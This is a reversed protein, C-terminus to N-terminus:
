EIGRRFHGNTFRNEWASMDIKKKEMFAQQYDMFIRKIEQESESLFEIRLSQFKMDSIKASHHM